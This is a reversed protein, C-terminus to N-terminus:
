AAAQKQKHDAVAKLAYGIKNVVAKLGVAFKGVPSKLGGALRALLEERGPLSALSKVGAADLIAGEFLGCKIRFKEHDKVFEMLVKPGAVPDNMSFTFASPGKLQAEPVPLGSEQLAIKMLRNKVVRLVAGQARLKSRLETAEAVTLGRYDAVVVSQARQLDQKVGSVLDIKQKSPMVRIVEKGPRTAVSMSPPLLTREAGDIKVPPIPLSEM